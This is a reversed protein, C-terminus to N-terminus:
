FHKDNLVEAGNWDPPPPTEELKAARASLYRSVGYCMRTTSPDIARRAQHENEQIMAEELLTRVRAFNRSMFADFAQTQLKCIERTLPDAQAIPCIAEWLVSPKTKGEVVVVDVPRALVTDAVMDASHTDATCLIETGYRKNLEELRSALNVGDGLVGYKLRAHSGINGHFVTATHVGIRIRIEPFGQALWQERLEDLRRQMRMACSLCQAAHNPTFSPANWVALIADGVYELITGKTESVLAEMADFYETLLVIIKEPELAECIKTFGKIDSFFVTINRKEVYVDALSGRTSMLDKVVAKPVYHGFSVIAVKMRQFADQLQQVEFVNSHAGPDKVFEPSAELTQLIKMDKCIKRVPLTVMDSIASASRSIEFSSLILLILVVGIFALSMAAEERFDSEDNFKAVAEQTRFVVRPGTGPALKTTYRFRDPEMWPKSLLEQDCARLYYLRDRFEKIFVEKSFNFAASQAGEEACAREIFEVSSGRLDGKTPGPVEMFPFVLLLVFIIIVIKVTLRTSLQSSMCNAPLEIEDEDDHDDVTKMSLDTGVENRLDSVFVHMSKQQPIAPSGGAGESGSDRVQLRDHIKRAEMVLRGLRVFRAAKIIRGAKAGVKAARGTRAITGKGYMREVMSATFFMSLISLVDLTAYVSGAYEPAAIINVILELVFIWAIIINVTALPDDTEPPLTLTAVDEGFIAWVTVLLM